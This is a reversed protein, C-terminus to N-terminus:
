SDTQWCTTVCCSHQHSAQLPELLQLQSDLGRLELATLLRGSSSVYAWHTCVSVLPLTLYDGCSGATNIQSSCCRATVASLRCWAQCDQDVQGAMRHTVQGCSWGPASSLHVCHGAGAATDKLRSSWFVLGMNSLSLQDPRQHASSSSAHQCCLWGQWCRHLTCHPCQSAGASTWDPRRRRSARRQPAKRCPSRHGQGWRSATHVRSRAALHVCAALMSPGLM